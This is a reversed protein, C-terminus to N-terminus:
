TGLRMKQPQPAAKTKWNEEGQQGKCNETKRGYRLSVLSGMLGAFHRGFVRWSQGAAFPTGRHTGRDDVNLAGNGGGADRTRLM